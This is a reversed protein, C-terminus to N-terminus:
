LLVTSCITTRINTQQNDFVSFPVDFNVELDIDVLRIGMGLTLLGNEFDKFAFESGLRLSVYWDKLFQFTFDMGTHMKAQDSLANWYECVFGFLFSNLRGRKAFQERNYGIGFGISDKINELDIYLQTKENIFDDLLVGASWPGYKYGLGLRVMVDTNTSPTKFESVLGDYFMSGFINESRIEVNEKIKESSASVGIGIAFDSYGYAIAVDIASKKTFDYSGNGLKKTIFSFDGDLSINNGILLVSLDCAPQFPFSVSSDGFSSDYGRLSVIFDSQNDYYYVSAPNYFYNNQKGSVAIGINGMSQERLTHSSGFASFCLAFLLLAILHKKM